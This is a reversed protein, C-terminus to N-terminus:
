DQNLVIECAEAVEAESLELGLLEASDAVACRVTHEDPTFDHKKAMELVHEAVDKANEM